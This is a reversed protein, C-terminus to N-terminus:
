DLGPPGDVCDPQISLPDIDPIRLIMLLGFLPQLLLRALPRRRCRIVLQHGSNVHLNIQQDETGVSEM